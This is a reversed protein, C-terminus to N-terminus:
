EKPADKETLMKAGKAELNKTEKTWNEYAFGLKHVALQANSPEYRILM